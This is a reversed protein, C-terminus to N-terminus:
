VRRRWIVLVAVVILASAAGAEILILSEVPIEPVIGLEDYLTEGAAKWADAIAFLHGAIEHLEETFESIAEDLDHSSEFSAAMGYFTNYLITDRSIVEIGSTISSNHSLADMHSLAESSEEIFAGLEISPLLDPLSDLAGRYAHYQMTMMVELSHGLRRIAEPKDVEMYNYCYDLIAELTMDLGMGRFADAGAGLYFFNEYGEFYASRNGILRQSIYYALRDEFDTVQGTGNSVRFTVYGASQWADDLTSYSMTYNWRGDEPYGVYPEVLGVGPDYVHVTQSTDNYGVIVIAHGAGGPQMPGIYNRVIDWDVPPLYYTDVSIALPYGADISERMVNLPTISASNSYDTALTGWIGLIQLANNGYATSSDLYFQMDLGYLHTFFEFWPLQGVMVGPLFMMTEDVSVSVMSFGTGSAALIDYLSLDLGMSQLVMSLAAPFCFGNVEQWVYPVGTIEESVSFSFEAPHVETLTDTGAPISVTSVLIIILISSRLRSIKM